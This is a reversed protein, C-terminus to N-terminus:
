EAEFVHEVWAGGHRPIHHELVQLLLLDPEGADALHLAPILEVVMTAYRLRDRVLYLVVLGGTV